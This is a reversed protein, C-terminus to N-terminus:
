VPCNSSRRRGDRRFPRRSKSRPQAYTEPARSTAADNLRSAVRSPLPLVVDEETAIEVFGVCFAVEDVVDGVVGNETLEESPVEKVGVAEALRKRSELQATREFLVEVRVEGGSRVKLRVLEYGHELKQL